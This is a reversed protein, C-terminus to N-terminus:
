LLIFDPMYFLHGQRFAQSTEFWGDGYSFYLLSGNYSHLFPKAFHDCVSFALGLVPYVVIMYKYTGVIHKVKCLTLYILLVNTATTIFIPIKTFIEFFEHFLM